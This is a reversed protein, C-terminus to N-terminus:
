EGEVDDMVMDASPAPAPASQDPILEVEIPAAELRGTFSGRGARGVVATPTITYRGALTLQCREVLNITTEISEGTALQQPRTARARGAESCPVAEGNSEARLEVQIGRSGAIRLTEEGFNTIRLTAEISDGVTYTPEAHIRAVVPPDPIELDFEITVPDLTGAVDGGEITPVELVMEIYYRGETTLPCLQSVDLRRYTNSSTALPILGSATPNSPLAECDIDEFQPPPPAAPEAEEGQQEEAAATEGGEDSSAEESAEPAPASEAEESESVDPVPVPEAELLRRARLRVGYSDGAPANVVPEGANIIGVRVEIPWGVRYRPEADWVRPEPNPEPPPPPAPEPEITPEDQSAGCGLVSLSSTVLVLLSLLVCCRM